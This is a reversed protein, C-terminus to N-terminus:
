LFEIFKGSFFLDECTYGCICLEPLVVIRAGKAFAEDIGACIQQRNYVTDAVKLSPTVAAAKVFGHEMSEENRRVGIRM